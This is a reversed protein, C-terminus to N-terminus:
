ASNVWTLLLFLLLSQLPSLLILILVLVSPRLPLYIAPNGGEARRLNINTKIISREDKNAKTGLAALPLVLLLLLKALVIM